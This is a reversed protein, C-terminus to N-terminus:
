RRACWPRRSARGCRRCCRTRCSTLAGFLRHVRPLLAAPPRGPHGGAGRAARRAVPGLRRGDADVPAPAPGPRHRPRRGGRRGARAGRRAPRPPAPAPAARLCATAARGGARDRVLEGVVFDVGPAADEHAVRGPYTPPPTLPHDRGPGGAARHRQPAPRGAPRHPRAARLRRGAGDDLTAGTATPSLVRGGASVVAGDDRRRTGAHVVGPQDSGSIVDGTRPPGPYGAAALVVTVAADDRWRLPPHGALGGTAAAHLLAGLPTELLALM